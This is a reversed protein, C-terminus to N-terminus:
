EISQGRFTDFINKYQNSYQTDIKGLGQNYADEGYPATFTDAAGSGSLKNPTGFLSLTNSSGQGVEGIPNKQAPALSGIVANTAMSKAGTKAMSSLGSGFKSMLSPAKSVAATGASSISTPTFGGMASTMPAGGSALTMPVGAGSAMSMQPITNGAATGVGGGSMSMAPAGPAATGGIGLAGKGFSAAKNLFGPGANKLGALGGQMLSSAGGASIAGLGADMAINSFTNKGYKEPKVSRSHAGTGAALGGGALAPLLWPISMGGTFPAIMLGLVPALWKGLSGGSKYRIGDEEHPSVKQLLEDFEHNITNADLGSIGTRRVYAVGAKADAMGLATKAHKYPLENFDVDDMIRIEYM